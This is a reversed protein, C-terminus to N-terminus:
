KYQRQKKQESEYLNQSRALQSVVLNIKLYKGSGSTFTLAIGSRIGVVLSFTKAGGRGIGGALGHRQSYVFFLSHTGAAGGSAVNGALWTWYGEFLSKFCDQGRGFSNFHHLM